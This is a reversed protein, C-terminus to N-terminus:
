RVSELGLFRDLPVFVSDSRIMWVVLVDSLCGLLVTGFLFAAVSEPAVEPAFCLLSEVGGSPLRAAFLAAAAVAAAWFADVFTPKMVYGFVPFADAAEDPALADGEEGLL